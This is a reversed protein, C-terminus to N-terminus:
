FYVIEIIDNSHTKHCFSVVFLALLNKTLMNSEIDLLEEFLVIGMETLEAYMGLYHM